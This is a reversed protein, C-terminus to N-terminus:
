KENVGLVIVEEYVQMYTITYEKGDIVIISDSSMPLPKLLVKRSDVNLRNNLNNITRSDFWGVYAEVNTEVYNPIEVQTVPDFTTGNQTKVTINQKPMLRFQYELVVKNDFM